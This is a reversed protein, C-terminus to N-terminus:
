VALLVFTRALYVAAGVIQGALVQGPTHHELTVRSWGMVTSFGLALAPGGVPMPATAALAVYTGVASHISIKWVTTISLCVVLGLLIGSVEQFLAPKAHVLALVAFALGISLGAVVMIPLRQSRRTVHRDSVLGRKRMVVLALTPVVTVFTAALVAHTWSVGPHLLPLAALFLTAVVSPSGVESVLGAVAQLKSKHM